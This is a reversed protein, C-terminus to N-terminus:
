REALEVDGQKKLLARKVLRYIIYCLIPMSVLLALAVPVWVRMIRAQTSNGRESNISTGGFVASPLRRILPHDTPLIFKM